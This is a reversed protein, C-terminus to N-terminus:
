QPVAYHVYNVTRAGAPRLAADPGRHSYPELVAEISEALAALEAATLHLIRDTLPRLHFSTSGSREGLMAAARSATLPGERRMLGNNKMRVPHAYARLAKPSSLSIAAPRDTEM